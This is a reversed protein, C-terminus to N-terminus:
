DPGVMFWVVELCFVDWMPINLTRGNGLIGFTDVVSLLYHMVNHTQNGAWRGVAKVDVKVLLFM